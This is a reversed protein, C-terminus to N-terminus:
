RASATRALRDLTQSWRSESGARGQRAAARAERVYREVEAPDRTWVMRGEDIVHAQHSLSSERLMRLDVGHGTERELRDMLKAQASWDLPSEPIDLVAIDLDSDPRFLRTLASGYLFVALIKGRSEIESIRRIVGAVEEVRQSIATETTDM